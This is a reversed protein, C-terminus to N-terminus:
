NMLFGHLVVSISDDTNFFGKLRKEREWVTRYSLQMMVAIQPNDLGLLCLDFYLFDKERLNPYLNRLKEFLQGFHRNAAEKLEAKQVKTLAIDSYASFPINSKIPNKEDNCVELIHRCISEEEYKMETNIHIPLPTSVKTKNEREKKLAENSERLRGAMAKQKAEHAQREEMIQKELRKKKRKNAFYRFAFAMTIVLLGGIAIGIRKLRDYTTKQYQKEQRLHLYDNYQKSLLSKLTSKNENENAFPVLFNAFYSSEDRKKVQCIEVLWEAAQKRSDTSPSEDFVMTLYKWASDYKKEEYYIEGISLCGSYFERDSESLDLLRYLQTFAQTEDGTKKYALFALHGSTIRYNLNNTDALVELAKHYYYGASDIKDLMDYHAGIEDLIWSLHWPEADYEDYYILSQKGFYIAQEHLYQDSFLGCLHTNLLAMFKAKYGVLDKETFHEEMIELANLYQECAQVVSDIEYYGVGNMYHCRASLFPSDLSDYYAMAKLLEPRNFQDFYNKYLAESLLLQYYPDEKPSAQLQVLASDPRSQMLSDIAVLESTLSAGHCTEVPRHCAALVLFLIAGIFCLLKM